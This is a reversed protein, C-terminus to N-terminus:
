RPLRYSIVSSNFQQFAANKDLRLQKSCIQPFNRSLFGSPGSGFNDYSGPLIYPFFTYLYFRYLTDIPRDYRAAKQIASSGGRGSSM